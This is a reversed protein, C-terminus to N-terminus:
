DGLQLQLHIIEMYFTTANQGGENVYKWAVQGTKLVIISNLHAFFM